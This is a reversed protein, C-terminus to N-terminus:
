FDNYPIGIVINTQLQHQPLARLKKRWDEGEEV